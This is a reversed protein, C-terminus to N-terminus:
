AFKEALESIVPLALRQRNYAKFMAVAWCGLFAFWFVSMILGFVLALFKPLALSVMTLSFWLVMFGATLFISQLAHIRIERSKSYPATTLFLLGTLAFVSYCLTCVVHKPLDYQAM